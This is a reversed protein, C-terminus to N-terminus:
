IVYKSVVGRVEGRGSKETVKYGFEKRTTIQIWHQWMRAKRERQLM